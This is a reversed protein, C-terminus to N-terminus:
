VSIASEIHTIFFKFMKTSLCPFSFIILKVNIFWFFHLFTIYKYPTFFVFFHICGLLLDKKTNFIFTDFPFCFNCNEHEIDLRVSRLRNPCPCTFMIENKGTRSIVKRIMGEFAYNEADMSRIFGTSTFVSRDTWSRDHKLTESAM